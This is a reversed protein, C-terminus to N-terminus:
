VKMVQLQFRIKAFFPEALLTSYPYIDYDACLYFGITFFSFRDLCKCDAKNLEAPYHGHLSNDPERAQYSRYM